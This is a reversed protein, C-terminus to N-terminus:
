GTERMRKKMDELCSLFMIEDGLGQEGHVVVFGPSKGDWWPTIKGEGHYNRIAVQQKVTERKDPEGLRVEHPEWAEDWKQLELLALAKHWVAIRLEPDIELAQNALDLAEQPKGANIRLGSRNAPYDARAPNIEQARKFAADAEKMLLEKRLTIGMHNFAPDFDPRVKNVYDLMHVAVGHMGRMECLIGIYFAVEPQGINKNFIQHFIPEADDIKGEHMLKQANEFLADAKVIQM